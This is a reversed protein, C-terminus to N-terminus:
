KQGLEARLEAVMERSVQRRIESDRVQNLKPDAKRRARVRKAREGYYSQGWLGFALTEVLEISVDLARAANM